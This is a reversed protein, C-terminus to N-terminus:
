STKIEVQATQTDPVRSSHRSLNILLM